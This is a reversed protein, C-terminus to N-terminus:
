LQPPVCAASPAWLGGSRRPDFFADIAASLADLEAETPASWDSVIDGGNGEIFLVTCRVGNRVFPIRTQGTEQIKGPVDKIATSWGRASLFAVLGDM